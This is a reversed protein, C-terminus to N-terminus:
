GERQNLIAKLAKHEGLVVFVYLTSSGPAMDLPRSKM